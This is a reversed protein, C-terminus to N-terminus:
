NIAKIAKNFAVNSKNELIVSKRAFVIHSFSHISNDVKELKYSSANEIVDSGVVIYVESSPFNERLKKLDQPNSINTPFDEPYLYINLEDAISM